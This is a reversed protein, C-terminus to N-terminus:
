SERTGQEKRFMEYAGLACGAHLAANARMADLKERPIREIRWVKMDTYADAMARLAAYLMDAAERETEPITLEELMGQM